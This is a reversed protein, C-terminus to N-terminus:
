FSGLRDLEGLFIVRKPLIWRGGGVKWKLDWLVWLGLRIFPLPASRLHYRLISFSCEARTLMTMDFSKFGEEEFGEGGM